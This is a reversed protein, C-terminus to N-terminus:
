GQIVGAANITVSYCRRAIKKINECFVTIQKENGRPDTKGGPESQLGMVERWSQRASSKLVYAAKGSTREVGLAQSGCWGFSGDMGSHGWGVDIGEGGDEGGEREEGDEEVDGGQDPM